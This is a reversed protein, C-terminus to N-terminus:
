EEEAVDGTRSADGVLDDSRSGDVACECYGISEWDVNRESESWYLVGSENDLLAALM